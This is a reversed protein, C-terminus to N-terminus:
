NTNNNMSLQIDSNLNFINIIDDYEKQNKATFCLSLNPDLYKINIKNIKNSKYDIQSNIDQTFHPDLYYIDFNNDIGLFYYARTKQGGIFGVFNKYTFFLYISHYYKNEIIDMGLRLPIFVLTSKNIIKEEVINGSIIKIDINKYDSKNVIDKILHSMTNPGLWDDINFGLKKKNDCLNHISFPSSKNDYFFSLLNEKDEDIVMKIGQYLIMQGCRLMCGWGTDSTISTNEIPLFNKKYSFLIHEFYEKNFKEFEEFKYSSGHQWLIINKNEM